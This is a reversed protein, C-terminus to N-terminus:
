VTSSMELSSPPAIFAAESNWTDLDLGCAKKKVERRSPGPYPSCQAHNWLAQGCRRRRGLLGRLVDGLRASCTPQRCQYAAARALGNRM